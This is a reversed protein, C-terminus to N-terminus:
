FKDYYARAFKENKSEEKTEKSTTEDTPTQSVNACSTSLLIAAGITLTKTISM